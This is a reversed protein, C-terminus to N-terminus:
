QWCIAHTYALKHNCHFGFYEYGADNDLRCTHGDFSGNAGLCAQSTYGENWVTQYACYCWQPFPVAAVAEVPVAEVAITEVTMCAVFLVVLPVVFNKTNALM